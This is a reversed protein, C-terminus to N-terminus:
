SYHNDTSFSCINLGSASTIIDFLKDLYEQRDLATSMDHEPVDIVYEQSLSVEELNDNEIKIDYFRQLM